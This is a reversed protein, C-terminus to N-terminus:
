DAISRQRTKVRSKRASQQGKLSKPLLHRRVWIRGDKADYVRKWQHNKDLNGALYALGEESTYPRLIVLGVGRKDLLKMGRPKGGAMDLYDLLLSDPYANLLDIFIPRKYGLRWQLYSSNEYDNFIRARLRQKEIFRVANAPVKPSVAGAKLIDAPVVCALWVVITTIVGARALNRLPPPIARLESKRLELWARWLRTTDLSDANAAMVALSVLSMMWLHRRAMIFSVAMFLLWFLHAWRSGERNAWAFLAILFLVAECIVLEPLLMTKVWVPKWEDIRSFMEGRVPLLAQWYHAGYPNVFVAGFCLLTLVALLRSRRTFGTQVLECVAAITMIALGLAVAGHFNAWVAFMGVIGLLMMLERRPEVQLGGRGREPWRVLFVLLITLFVASFLEPRPHFRPMACYIALSFILPLLITARGRTLWLRWLLVFTTSIMGVTFALVLYPGFRPGGLAMMGYFSLQTLWSHYVWPIPDAGWLFLTQRPVEHHQVMWRGIAAHAWFDDVGRLPRWASGACLLVMLPLYIRTLDLGNSRSEQVLGLPRDSAM